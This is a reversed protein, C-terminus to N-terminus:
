EPIVWKVPLTARSAIPQGNEDKAPTYRVRSKAIRCTAQDLAASGSSSTVECDAVRGDTGITLSAVVRGQEGARLASPPYNDSNFYQGPNGKAVAAQSIRPPAPPPPPPPPAEVPRPPPPVPVSIVPPAVTPASVIPPPTVVPPPTMPVDPPPPPPEDPPPPPPEEVDFTNLKESVKKVYQYALGTVFAYGLALHIAAVIVIAVVKSGSMKQDAYAM